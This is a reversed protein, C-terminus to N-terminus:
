KFFKRNLINAVPKKFRRIKIQEFVNSWFFERQFLVAMKGALYKLLHCPKALEKPTLRNEIKLVFFVFANRASRKSQSGPKQYREEGFKEIGCEHQLFLSNSSCFSMFYTLVSTFYPTLFFAVKELKETVQYLNANQYFFVRTLNNEFDSSTQRKPDVRRHLKRAYAADPRSLLIM